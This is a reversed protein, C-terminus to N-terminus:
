FRRERGFWRDVIAFALIGVLGNLLARKALGATSLGLIPVDFMSALSSILLADALTATIVVLSQPIPGVIVFRAGALGVAFGVLLKTLGALGLVRGGFLVDQVWGATVGALMGHGEGRTLGAYVLVLLFPDLHRAAGPLLRGLGTEVIVAALLAMVTWFASM